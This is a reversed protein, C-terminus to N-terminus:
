AAARDARGHQDRRALHRPTPQAAVFAEPYWTRYVTYALFLGGFFLVETALFVWMGLTSPRTSSSSTTSTIRSAPRPQHAPM